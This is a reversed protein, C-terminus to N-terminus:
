FALRLAFTMKAVVKRAGADCVKNITSIVDDVLVTTSKINKQALQFASLFKDLRPNWENLM